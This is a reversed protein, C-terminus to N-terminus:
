AELAKREMITSSSPANSTKHGRRNHLFCIWTISIILAVEISSTLTLIISPWLIDAAWISCSIETGVTGDRTVTPFCVHVAHKRTRHFSIACEVASAIWLIGLGAAYVIAHSSCPTFPLIYDTHHPQLWVLLLTEGHHPLTFVFALIIPILTKPEQSRLVNDVVACIFAILAIPLSASVLKALHRPIRPPKENVLTNAISATESRDSQQTGVIMTILLTALTPGLQAFQQADLEIIKDDRFFEARRINVAGEPRLSTIMAVPKSDAVRWMRTIFFIEVLLCCVETPISQAMLTWDNCFVFQEFSMDAGRRILYFWIAPTMLFVNITEAAWVLGVHIKLSLIDRPFNYYYTLVQCFALGYLIYSVTSGVFIAGATNYQTLGVDQLTLGSGDSM